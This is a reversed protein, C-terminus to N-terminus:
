KFHFPIWATAACLKGSREFVYIIYLFFENYRWFVPNFMNYLYGVRFLMFALFDGCCFYM